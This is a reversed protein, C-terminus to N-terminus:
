PPAVSEPAPAAAMSAEEPAPSFVQPSTPPAETAAAPEPAYPAQPLLQFAALREKLSRTTRRASAVRHHTLSAEREGAGLEAELQETLQQLEEIRDHIRTLGQDFLQVSDQLLDDKRIRVGRPVRLAALDAFVCRLRYLPGAVRFMSRVGAVFLMLSASLLPLFVFQLLLDLRIRFWRCGWEWSDNALGFLPPILLGIAFFVTLCGLFAVALRGVLRVQLDRDILMRTRRNKPAKGDM